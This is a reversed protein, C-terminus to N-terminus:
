LVEVVVKMTVLLYSGPGGSERGRQIEKLRGALCSLNTGATKQWPRSM